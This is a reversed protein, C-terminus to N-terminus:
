ISSRFVKQLVMYLAQSALSSHSLAAVQLKRELGEQSGFNVVVAPRSEKGLKSFTICSSKVSCLLSHKRPKGMVALFVWQNLHLAQKTCLWSLM